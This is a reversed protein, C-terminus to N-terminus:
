RPVCGNYSTRCDGRFKLPEDNMWDSRRCVRRGYNTTVNISSCFQSLSCGNGGVEVGPPTNPCLDTSDAEGDDDEDSFIPDELCGALDEECQAYENDPNNPFPDCADGILDFDSDIQDENFDDPCNDADDPIGDNDFDPLENELRSTLECPGIDCLEQDGGADGTRITRQNGVNDRVRMQVSYSGLPAFQAIVVTGCATGESSGQSVGQFPVNNVQFFVNGPDHNIRLLIIEDPGSLDDEVTLCFDVDTSGLSPDFVTPSMWFDIGVPATTDQAFATESVVLVVSTLLTISFFIAFLKSLKNTNLGM